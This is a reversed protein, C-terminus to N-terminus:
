APIVRPAWRARPALRATPVRPVRPVRPRKGRGMGSSYSKIDESLVSPDVDSTHLFASRELGIDIFAAQLGPLVSQVRGRYINGVLRMHDPREVVLEAVKGNELLAVRKETASANFLIKKEM